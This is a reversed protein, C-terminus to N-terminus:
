NSKNNSIHTNNEIGYDTDQPVVHVGICSQKLRIVVVQVGDKEKVVFIDTDQNM